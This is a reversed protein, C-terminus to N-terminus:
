DKRRLAYGLLTGGALLAEVPFGPIGTKEKITKEIGSLEEPIEIDKIYDLGIKITENFTRGIEEVNIESFDFGGSTGTGGQGSMDVEGGELTFLMYGGPEMLTWNGEIFYHATAYFVKDTDGSRTEMSLSYTKEGYDGIDDSTQARPEFQDDLISVVLPVQMFNYEIKVEVTFNQGLSVEGTPNVGTVHVYYGRIKTDDDVATGTTNTSTDTSGTSTSSGGDPVVEFPLTVWWKGDVTVVASWTGPMDTMAIDPDKSRWDGIMELDEWM